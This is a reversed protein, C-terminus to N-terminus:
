DSDSDLLPMQYADKPEEDTISPPRAENSGQKARKRRAPRNEDQFSVLMELAISGYLNIVLFLFPSLLEFCTVHM